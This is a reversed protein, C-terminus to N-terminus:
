WKGMTTTIAGGGSSTGCTSEQTRNRVLHIHLRRGSSKVTWEVRECSLEGLQSGVRLWSDSYRNESSQVGWACFLVM